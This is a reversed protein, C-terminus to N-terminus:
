IFFWGWPATGASQLAWSVCSIRRLGGLFLHLVVFGPSCNVYPFYCHVVTCPCVYPFLNKCVCLVLRGQVGLKASPFNFVAEDKRCDGRTKDLLKRKCVEFYVCKEIEFDGM